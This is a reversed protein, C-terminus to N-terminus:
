ARRAQRFALAALTGPVVIGFTVFVFHDAWWEVAAGAVILGVFVGAVALLSRM